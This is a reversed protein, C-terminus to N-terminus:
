PGHGTCLPSSDALDILQRALRETLDARTAAHAGKEQELTSNLQNYRALQAQWEDESYGCAAVILAGALGCRSRLKFWVANM